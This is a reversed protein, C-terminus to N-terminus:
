AWARIYAGNELNVLRLGTQGGPWATRCGPRIFEASRHSSEPACLARGFVRHRRDVIAIGPCWRCVSRAPQILPPRLARADPRRPQPRATPAYGASPWANGTNSAAAALLDVILGLGSGAPM